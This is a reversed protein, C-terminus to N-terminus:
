SGFGLAKFKYARTFGQVELGYLKFRRFFDLGKFRLYGEMHYLRM